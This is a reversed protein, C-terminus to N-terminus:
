GSKFQNQTHLKGKAGTLSNGTAAQELSPYGLHLPLSPNWNWFGVQLRPSLWLATSCPAANAHFFSGGPESISSHSSVQGSPATSWALRMLVESSPVQARSREAARTQLNSWFESTGGAEEGEKAPEPLLDQSITITQIKKKREATTHLSCVRDLYFSHLPLPTGDGPDSAQCSSEWLSEPM